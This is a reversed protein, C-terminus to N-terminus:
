HINWDFKENARFADSRHIRQALVNTAAQRESQPWEFMLNPVHPHTEDVHISRAFAHVRTARDSGIEGLSAPEEDVGHGGPGEGSDCLSGATQILGGATFQSSTGCAASCGCRSKALSEFSAGPLDAIFM